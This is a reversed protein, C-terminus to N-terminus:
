QGPAGGGIGRATRLEAPILELLQDPRLPLDLLSLKVRSRRAHRAPDLRVIRAADPVYDIRVAAGAAVDRPEAGDAELVAPHADRPLTLVITEEPGLVVPRSIGSMPAVPTVVVAHLSPSVVPGGAAYNYATSGSPSSVVLADARYHGFHEGAVDLDVATTGGRTAARLVLDNFATLSTGDVTSGLRLAGRSEVSFDGEVLRALTPELDSPEIETLFGLHGHNVGLVPVPRAAVLRLAGLMTGDGGLSLVGDARAAFEADDVYEAGDGIRARDATRALITLGHGDAWRLTREVSGAVATSPHVVLGLSGTRLPATM